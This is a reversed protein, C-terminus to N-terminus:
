PKIRIFLGLVYEVVTIFLVGGGIIIALNIVVDM